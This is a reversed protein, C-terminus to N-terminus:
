ETLLSRILGKLQGPSFPKNCVANVGAQLVGELRSNNQESTVMLIPVFPQNSHNRITQALEEGDMHPMNYDTFVLDYTNQRILEMAEDGDHATHVQEIGLNELTRGIHKLSFDSDDVLLVRLEGPDYDEVDLEDPDLFELTSRVARDLDEHSFPKPLIAVSGAQRIPELFSGRTESSVLMFPVSSLAPDERMRSVLQVGEADPLYMASIVLDPPYRRMFDLAETVTERCDIKTCGVKMLEQSIVKQQFRSPEVIMIALDGISIQAM